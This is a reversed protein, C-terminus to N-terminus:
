SREKVGAALQPVVVKGPNIIGRLDFSQRRCAARSNGDELHVAGLHNM